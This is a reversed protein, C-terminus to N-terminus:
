ARRLWVRRRAVAFGAVALGGWVFLSVPEPLASIDITVTATDLTQYPNNPPSQQGLLNSNGALDVLGPGFFPATPQFLQLAPATSGSHTVVLEFNVNDAGSTTPLQTIDNSVTIATWGQGAANASGSGSVSSFGMQWLPTGAVASSLSLNLAAAGTGSLTFNGSPDNYFGVLSNPAWSAVAASAAPSLMGIAALDAASNAAGFQYTYTTGASGTTITEGVVQIAVLGTVDPVLTAPYSGPAPGSEVSTLDFASVLVTGVGVITSSSGALGPATPAIIDGSNDNLTNNGPILSFINTLSASVPRTIAFVAVVAALALVTKGRTIM